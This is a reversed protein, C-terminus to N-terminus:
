QQFFSVKDSDNAAFISFGIVYQARTAGLRKLPAVIQM